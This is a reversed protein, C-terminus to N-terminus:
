TVTTSHMKWAYPKATNVSDSGLATAWGPKPKRRVVTRVSVVPPTKTIHSPSCIVSRPMPFPMLRSIKKEITSRIRGSVTFVNSANFVPVSLKGTNSRTSAIITSTTAPVTAIVTAARRIGTWIGRLTIPRPRIRSPCFVNMGSRMLLAPTIGIMKACDSIMTGPVTAVNLPMGHSLLKASYKLVVETHYMTDLATSIM